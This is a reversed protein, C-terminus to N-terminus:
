DRPFIERERERERERARERMMMMMMMMMMSSIQFTRLLIGYSNGVHPRRGFAAAGTNAIIVYDKESSRV